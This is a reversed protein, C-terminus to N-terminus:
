VAHDRKGAFRLAAEIDGPEILAPKGEKRLREDEFKAVAGSMCDAALEIAPGGGGRSLLGLQDEVAHGTEHSLVQFVVFACNEPRCKTRQRIETVFTEPM